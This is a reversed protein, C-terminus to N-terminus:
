KVPFLRCYALISISAGDTIIASYYFVIKNGTFIAKTFGATHHQSSIFKYIIEAILIVTDMM